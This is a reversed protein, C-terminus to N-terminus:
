FDGALAQLAALAAMGATETRLTRPGLRVAIFGASRAAASEREDLGSEPGVLLEVEREATFSTEGFAREADPALMLSLAGAPREGGALWRELPQLEHLRPLVDRGCQMCAAEIVRQWHDRRRQARTADLRQPSHTSSLPRIATVGLEVAKEITWDMREGASVCQLLTVRLPSETRSPLRAGVSITCGRPDASALTAEFRGGRGDFCELAAGAALRLVRVLHHSRQADLRVSRDPEPPEGDFGLRGADVALREADPILM